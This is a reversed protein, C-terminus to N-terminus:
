GHISNPVSAPDGMSSVVNGAADFM